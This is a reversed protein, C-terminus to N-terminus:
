EGDDRGGAGPVLGGFDNRQVVGMFLVTDYCDLGLDRHGQGHEVATCGHPQQHEAEAMVQREPVCEVRRLTMM